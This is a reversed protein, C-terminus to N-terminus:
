RELKGATLGYWGGKKASWTVTTGQQDDRAGEGRGAAHKEDNQDEGVSNPGLEGVVYKRGEVLDSCFRPLVNLQLLDRLKYSCCPHESKGKRKAHGHCRLNRTLPIKQPHSRRKTKNEVANYRFSRRRNEILRRYIGSLPVESIYIFAVPLYCSPARKPPRSYGIIPM